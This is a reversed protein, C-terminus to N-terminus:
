STISRNVTLVKNLYISRSTETNFHENIRNMARIVLFSSKEKYQKKLRHKM